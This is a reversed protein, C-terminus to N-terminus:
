NQISKLMKKYSDVINELKQVIEVQNGYAEEFDEIISEEISYLVKIPNPKELASVETTLWELTQAIEVQNPYAIKFDEIIPEIKSLVEIPNSKELDNLENTLFDLAKRDDDSLSEKFLEEKVYSSIDKAPNLYVEKLFAKNEASDDWSLM